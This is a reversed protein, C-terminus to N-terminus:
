DEAADNMLANMEAAAKEAEIKAESLADTAAKLEDLSTKEGDNEQVSLLDNEKVLKMDVEPEKPKPLGDKQMHQMVEAIAESQSKGSNAANMFINQFLEEKNAETGKNGKIKKKLQETRHNRAVKSTRMNRSRRMKSRLAARLEERSKKPSSNDKPDM